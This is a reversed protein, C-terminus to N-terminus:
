SSVAVIGDCSGFVLCGSLRDSTTWNMAPHDESPVPHIVADSKMPKGRESPRGNSMAVATARWKGSMQVKKVAVPRYAMATENATDTAKATATRKRGRVFARAMRQVVTTWSVTEPWSSSM